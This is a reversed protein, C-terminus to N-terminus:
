PPSLGSHYGNTEEMGLFWPTFPMPYAARATKTKIIKHPPLRFRLFTLFLRDEAPCSKLAAGRYPLADPTLSALGTGYCIHKPCLRPLCPFTKLTQFRQAESRTRGQCYVLYPLNRRKDPLM